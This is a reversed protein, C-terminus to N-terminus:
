QAAGEGTETSTPQAPTEGAHEAAEATKTGARARAVWGDVNRQKGRAVAIQGAQVDGTLTSGAAVYAGDAIEVPAVLVTNSGVFSHRGVTSHHKAVGDYNAFITGAGINAGAGITADGCYTLHPVKAGEGIEANKTEVFGGVKAKAALVTGPRLYSYPGVIAREGVVALLAEARRITAGRGVETDTLTVEPGVEAEDAITTAGLLQTGPRIVADQGITVDTDIWTTEPDVITVGARMHGECIRRNLVRALAALQVRDNVGETQWVDDIVHAAVHGGHSRSIALVDTLYKEGQANDTSVQALSTRLVTADFAYIGSNVETVTRQETTADKEEVIGTVAG